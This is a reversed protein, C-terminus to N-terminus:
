DMGHLAAGWNRLNDRDEAADFADEWTLGLGRLDERITESWKGRDEWEGKGGPVWNM